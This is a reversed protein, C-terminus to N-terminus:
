LLFLQAMRSRSAGLSARLAIERQRAIVRAFLLNLLNACALLLVFGAALQLMLFLPASFQYQEERLRLLDMGRGGNTKPYREALSASLARLESAAQALSVNGRLRAIAHISLATRETKEQADLALPVWLQVGLPYSYRLPMIGVVTHARGNLHITKGLLARDGSFRNQWYAYSLIATQDRGAEGEEPTFSRGIAPHVGVLDFFNPEVSAGAVSEPLGEGTLQFDGYRFASVREYSRAETKLDFFDAPPIRFEEAFQDAGTPRILVIRALEPFPYPRLLLANVVSFIATNAGIGLALTLVVVAAFGPNRRLQRASYCLDQWLAEVRAGARAARVEEKVQEVGGLEMRAGRRAEALSLGQRLKEEELLDLHASVEADLDLEAHERRLLNRLARLLHM